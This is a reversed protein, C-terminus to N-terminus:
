ELSGIRELKKHWKKQTMSFYLLGGDCKLANLVIFNCKCWGIEM